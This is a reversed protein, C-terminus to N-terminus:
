FSVFNALVMIPVELHLGKRTRTIVFLHGAVQALCERERANLLVVLM